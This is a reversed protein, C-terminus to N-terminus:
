KKSSREHCFYNEVKLIVSSTFKDWQLSYALEIECNEYAKLNEFFVLAEKAIGGQELLLKSHNGGFVKVSIIRAKTAFQPIANGEGYPEFESLVRFIEVGVSELPLIGLVNEKAKGLDEKIEVAMLAKKFGEFNEELLGIGAAGLHGGFSELFEGLRGLVEMCDVSNSRMSGKLRGEKSTLVISPKGFEECLKAAVIGIIGESWAENWVLVFPLKEFNEQSMFDAKAELFAQNQLKKRQANLGLLEELIGFAERSDKQVLFRYALEASGMRGACNLLPVFYYGLLQANLPYRKFYEKLLGLPVRKSQGLVELGKKLLVWNIGRLPMVDSVIALVLLDLFEVMPVQLGMEQKIAGCLYWAVCAGCIEKEPFNPSLKPNCILADPLTEQPTHHDTILLEIGRQKCVEAAEIANIGNDATIIVDCELREVLAASLGYGDSFRNPIVVSIGYAIREFFDQLIACSVVGDVDYDGVVVIKKQQKIAQAIRKAIEQLNNLASPLPLNQLSLIEEGSFREALREKILNANLLPLNPFHSLNPLNDLNSPM